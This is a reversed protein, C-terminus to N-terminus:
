ILAIYVLLYVIICYFLGFFNVLLFFLIFILDLICKYVKVCYNWRRRNVNYVSVQEFLLLLLLFLYTNLYIIYLIYIFFLICWDEEFINVFSNASTVRYFIQVRNIVYWISCNYFKKGGGLFYEKLSNFFVFVIIM